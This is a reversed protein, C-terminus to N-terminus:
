IAGIYYYIRATGIIGSGLAPLTLVVNTGPVARLPHVGYQIEIPAFASAPIQWTATGATNDGKTIGTLTPAVTAAPAGSASMSIGTVYITSVKSSSPATITVVANGNTALAESVFAEKSAIENKAPM